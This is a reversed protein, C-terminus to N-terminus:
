KDWESFDWEGLAVLRPTWRLADGRSLGRDAAKASRPVPPLEGKGHLNFKVMANRVYTKVM